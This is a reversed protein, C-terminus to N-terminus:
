RGLAVTMAEHVDAPWEGAKPWMDPTDGEAQQAFWLKRGAVDIAMFADSVGCAHPVCGSATFIGSPLREMGSSVTLGLTVDGLSEGLLVRSAEYVDANAFADVPYALAAPDLDAWGTGPQPTFQLIGAVKLGGDPTWVQVPLSEGPMLYPVFHIADAGISPPPSGCDEGARATQLEGGEPRWAIFTNPGCANGGPGVEFLAVEVGAVEATRDFMVFYDRAIEKGDFSLVKEADATETITFRGGAFPVPEAAEDQQAQATAAVAALLAAALLSRLPGAKM